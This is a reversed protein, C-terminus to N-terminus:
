KEVVIKEYVYIYGTKVLVVVATLISIVIGVLVVFSFLSLGFIMFEQPVVSEQMPLLLGKLPAYVFDWQGNMNTDLLFEGGGSWLLSSSTGSSSNYLTGTNSSTYTIRYSVNKITVRDVSSGDDSAAQIVIPIPESWVSQLGYYNKAQMKLSYTGPEEWYYSALGPADSAAFATWASCNGDGWDFRYSVQYGHPDCAAAAYTYQAAAVGQVKGSILVPARPYDGMTPSTIAVSLPTSWVGEPFKDNKFQVRLQYTGPTGWHHSQIISTEGDALQLWSTATGDGWDFLWSANRNLTIVSYNYTVNVFGYSSGTPPTPVYTITHAASSVQLHCLLIPILFLLFIFIVITFYCNKKQKGKPIHLKM